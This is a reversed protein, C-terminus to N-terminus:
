VPQDKHKKGMSFGKFGKSMKSAAEAMGSPKKEPVPPPPPAAAEVSLDAVAQAAVAQKEEPANALDMNLANLNTLMVKREEQLNTVTERLKAVEAKLSNNEDEVQVIQFSMNAKIAILEAAGGKEAMWARELAQLEHAMILLGLSAHAAEAEVAAADLGRESDAGNGFEDADEDDDDARQKRLRERLQLQKIVQQQATNADQVKTLQDRLSAVEKQASSRQAMRQHQAKLQARAAHLERLLMRSKAAFSAAEENSKAAKGRAEDAEDRLQQMQERATASDQDVRASNWQKQLFKVERRLLLIQSAASALTLEGGGDGTPMAGGGQGTLVANSAAREQKLQSALSRVDHALQANEQQLHECTSQEAVLTAHLEDIQQLLIQKHKDTADHQHAASSPPLQPPPQMCMRDTGSSATGPAIVDTRELDILLNRAALLLARHEVSPQSLAM